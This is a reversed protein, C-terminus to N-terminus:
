PLLKLTVRRLQSPRMNKEEASLARTGHSKLVLRKAPVGHEVFHSQVAAARRLGLRANNSSEGEMSTHGEISVRTRPEKELLRTVGQVLREWEAADAVSFTAEGKGFRLPLTVGRSLEERESATSPTTGSPEPQQQKAPVAAPPPEVARAAAAEPAPKAAVAALAVAEAPAPAPAPVPKAAAPDHAPQRLAVRALGAVVLLGAAAAAILAARRPIHRVPISPAPESEVDVEPAISRQPLAPPAPVPEAVPVLEPVVAAARSRPPPPPEPRSAPPESLLFDVAPMAAGPPPISAEIANSFEEISQADVPPLPARKSVPSPLVPRVPAPSPERPQTSLSQALAVITKWDVNETLSRGTARDRYQLVPPFPDNRDPLVVVKDYFKPYRQTLLALFELGEMSGLDMGAIVLGPNLKGVQPLAEEPSSAMVLEVSPGRLQELDLAFDQAQQESLVCLISRVSPMSAAPQTM